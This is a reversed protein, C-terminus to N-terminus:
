ARPGSALMTAAVRNAERYDAPRGVDFWTADGADYAVGLEITHFVDTNILLFRRERRWRREPVSCGAAPGSSPRRACSRSAPPRARGALYREIQGGLHSVNVAGPDVGLRALMDLHWDLLPRDGIPVLAKPLAETLPRLRTGRGAALLMAATM